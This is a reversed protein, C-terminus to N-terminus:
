RIPEIIGQQTPGLGTGESWGMEKMMKTAFSSIVPKASAGDLLARHVVDSPLPQKRELMDKTVVAKVIQGNKAQEADGWNDLFQEISNVSEDDIVIQYHTQKLTHFAKESAQKKALARNNTQAAAICKGGLHLECKRVCSILVCLYTKQLM